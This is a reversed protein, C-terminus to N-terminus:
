RPISPRGRRDVAAGGRETDLAVTVIELGPVFNPGCNRGCPCTLAAAEGPPGPSWCCKPGGCHALSFPTGDLDPLVLEPAPASTLARGGAGARPVLPWREDHMLPM